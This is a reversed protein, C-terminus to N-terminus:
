QSYTVERSKRRGLLNYVSKNVNLQCKEQETRLIHMFSFHSANLHFFFLLFYQPLTNIFKRQAVKSFEVTIYIYKNKSLM